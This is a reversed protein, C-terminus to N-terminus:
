ARSRDGTGPSTPQPGGARDGIRPPRSRRHGSWIPDVWSQGTGSHHTPETWPARLCLAGLPTPGRGESGRPPRSSRPPLRDPARVSSGTRGPRGTSSLGRCAVKRREFAPRTRSGISPDVLAATITRCPRGGSRERTRHGASRLRPSPSSRDHLSCPSVPHHSADPCRGSPQPSPGPTVPSGGPRTSSPPGTMLRRCRRTRLPGQPLSSRVLLHGSHGASYLRFRLLMAAIMVPCALSTQIEVLSDRAVFDLWYGAILLLGVVMTSGAMELTLQWAMGRFRMWVLMPVSLNVAIVLVSVGPATRPLDDLGLLAAAGVFLVSLVAAGGCM